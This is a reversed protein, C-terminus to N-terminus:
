MSIDVGNPIDELHALEPKEKAADDRLCPCRRPQGAKLMLGWGAERIKERADVRWTHPCPMCVGKDGAGLGVDPMYHADLSSKDCAIM